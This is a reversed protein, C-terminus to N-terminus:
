LKISTGVYCHLIYGYKEQAEKLYAKFKEYDTKGFYSDRRENGRATVHYFAGEYEIRLPRAM